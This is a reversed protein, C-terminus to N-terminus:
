SSEADRRRQETKLRNNLERWRIVGALEHSEIESKALAVARKFDAWSDVAAAHTPGDPTKKVAAIFRALAAYGENM